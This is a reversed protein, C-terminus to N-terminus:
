AHSVEQEQEQARLAPASQRLAQENLAERMAAGLAERGAICETIYAENSADLYDQTVRDLPKAWIRIEQPHM